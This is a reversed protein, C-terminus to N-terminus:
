ITMCVKHVFQCKQTVYTQEGVTAYSQYGTYQQLDHRTGCIPLFYVKESLMIESDKPLEHNIDNM